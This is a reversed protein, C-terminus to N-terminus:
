GACLPRRRVPNTPYYRNELQIEGPDFVTQEPTIVGEELAGSLTIMKFISGPPYLSSIAQNFLPQKPDQSVRLYYPYDIARAFRSNDYTPWSVMALVEGTRPNMAIVVGRDFGIVDDPRVRRLEELTDLLHQQARRQLEVDITLTVNYGPQPARTEGITRIIQGAVDREVVQLGPRGALWDELSFEVGDYGIRDRDLVYGEALYEEALTEPIPGMYGIVHATLAGTPYERVSVWDIDVGPLENREALILRATTYDIDTKVVVPRFPAIGQGERVMTLLSRQPIGREDVTRLEGSLPIRLLGALRRLVAMEEADDEPLLAPTVTVNASAVNIALPVGYRDTIIGRTAPISVEDFRNDDARFVYIQREIFQIQYIRGILLAFSILIIAQYIRLRVPRYTQNGRNLSPLSM